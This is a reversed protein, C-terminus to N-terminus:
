VTYTSVEGNKFRYQSFKRVDEGCTYTQAIQLTDAHSIFVINANSHTAEM